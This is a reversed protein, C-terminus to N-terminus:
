GAEEPTVLRVKGTLLQQMMGKKIQKTKDRWHELATIDADMDSLFAVIVAQESVSPIALEIEALEKKSIAYVSIGTAVCVLKSKFAPIFQLYAKFGIAWQNPNGRCLITHLGAVIERGFAGQIEVSKGTGELDESADVMILDGDELRIIEGIKDRFIHPLKCEKCDLVPKGHTHVDGYHIYEIEGGDNLDARPNNATPLFTIIDGLRKTEWEGAFGPLRTRGTLLQQMAAQKIARKKTILTELAGILGDADSLAAAIAHQEPLPPLPFQIKSLIDQNLSAMTTGIANNVLWQRVDPSRIQLSIYSPFVNSPLRLRMGDSGLFWGNQNPEILSSRDVSGKRAFVVDGTKLIYQPLRKIVEPPAKPTNEKIKVTGEGIEGVSIIPVGDTSYENAKLLTGFPGTLISAGIKKVLDEITIADWDEPIVGVETRKYGPKVVEESM